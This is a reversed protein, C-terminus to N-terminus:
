ITVSSFNGRHQSVGMDTDVGGLGKTEETESKQCLWQMVDMM